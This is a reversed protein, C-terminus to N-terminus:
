CWFHFRMAYNSNKKSKSKGFNVNCMSARIKCAVTELYHTVSIVSLHSWSQNGGGLRYCWLNLDYIFALLTVAWEDVQENDKEEEQQPACHCQSPWDLIELSRQGRACIGFTGLSVGLIFTVLLISQPQGPSKTWCPTGSLQKCLCVWVGCGASSSWFSTFRYTSKAVEMCTQLPKLLWRSMCM